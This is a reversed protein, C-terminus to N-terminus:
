LDSASLGGNNKIIDIIELLRKKTEVDTSLSWAIFGSDVPTYNNADLMNISAGSEILLSVMEKMGFFAAWHLPTAEEKNKAKIDIQAGNKLLMNAIEANDKIVALHMPQAGEFPLGEPIPYDNINTGVDIHQKVITIYGKDIATLLDVSPVSTTAYSDGCSVLPLGLVLVFLLHRVSAWIAPDIIARM